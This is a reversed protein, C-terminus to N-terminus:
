IWRWKRNGAIKGTQGNILLQDNKGQVTRRAIWLPLLVLKYTMNLIRVDDALMEMPEMFLGRNAAKRFALDRMRKHAEVAADELALQYLEAQWGALLEPRYGLVSKLDFPTIQAMVEDTVNRGAYLLLDDFDSEYWSADSPWQGKVVRDSASYTAPYIRRELACRIQVRGDFTWFPLYISSLTLQHAESLQTIHSAPVKWAKGLMGKVDESHWQFPAIATPSILGPTAPQLTIQESGCFPCPHKSQEPLINIRAGCAMCGAQGAVVAWNGSDNQVAADLGAEAESANKLALTEIKQCYTCVLGLLDPDFRQKGGCHPCTFIAFDSGPQSVITEKRNLRDLLVKAVTLQPELGLAQELYERKQSMTETSSALWLWVRPNDPEIKAALSLYKVAEQSRGTRQAIIGRGLFEDFDYM